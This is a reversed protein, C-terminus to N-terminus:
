FFFLFILSILPFTFFALIIIVQLSFFDLFRSKTNVVLFTLNGRSLEQLKRESTSWVEKELLKWSKVHIFVNRLLQILKRPLELRKKKMEHNLIKWNPPVSILFWSISELKHVWENSWCVMGGRCWKVNGGRERPNGQRCNWYKLQFIELQTSWPLPLMIRRSVILNWRIRSRCPADHASFSLILSFTCFPLLSPSSPLFPPPPLLHLSNSGNYLWNAVIARMKVNNRVIHFM